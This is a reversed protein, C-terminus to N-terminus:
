GGSNKSETIQSILIFQDQEGLIGWVDVAGYFIGERYSYSFHAIPDALGNSGEGGVITGPGNEITRQIDSQIAQMLRSSDDQDINLIMVEQNQVFPARPGVQSGSLTRPGELLLDQHSEVIPGISYNVKFTSQEPSLARGKTVKTVIGCSVLVLTLLGVSLLQTARLFM